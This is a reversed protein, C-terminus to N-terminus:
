RNDFHCHLTSAELQGAALPAVTQSGSVQIAEPVSTPTKHILVKLSQFKTFFPLINVCQLLLSFFNVLLNYAPCNM